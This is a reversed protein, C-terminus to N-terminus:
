VSIWAECALGSLTGDSGAEGKVFQRLHFGM